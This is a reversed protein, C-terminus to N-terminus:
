GLREKLDLFELFETLRGGEAVLFGGGPAATVLRAQELNALIEAVEQDSMGVRDALEAWSLEVRVGAAEPQGRTEALQRLARIVRHNADRLLLIEIQQNAQELRVALKKILRVAVEANGRIMAEFTRSDIVLLRADELVTATASRPRQNVVAMEGFFEGAALVALIKEEGEIRRTLQVRGSQLVYLEHGPDGECFLVTGTPYVREFRETGGEVTM